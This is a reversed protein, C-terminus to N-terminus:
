WVFILPTNRPTNISCPNFYDKVCLTHLVLIRQIIYFFPFFIREQKCIFLLLLILPATRDAATVVAAPLKLLELIYSDLCLCTVRTQVASSCTQQPCPTKPVCKTSSGGGNTLLSKTSAQWHPDTGAKVDTPHWSSQVPWLNDGANFLGKNCM